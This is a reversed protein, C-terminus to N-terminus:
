WQTEQRGENMALQVVGTDCTRSRVQEQMWRMGERWAHPVALAWLLSFRDLHVIM